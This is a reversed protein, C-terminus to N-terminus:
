PELDACEDSKPASWCALGGRMEMESPITLDGEAFTWEFNLSSPDDGASFTPGAAGSASSATVRKIRTADAPEIEGATCASNVAGRVSQEIQDRFLGLRVDTFHKGAGNNAFSERDIAVASQDACGVAATTVVKIAAPAAAATTTTPPPPAPARDCAALLMAGVVGAGGRM